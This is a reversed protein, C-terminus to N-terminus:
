GDVSLVCVEWREARPCEPCQFEMAVSYQHGELNSSDTTSDAGALEETGSHLSHCRIGHSFLGAILPPDSHDIHVSSYCCSLSVFVPLSPVAVFLVGDASITAEDFTISIKVNVQKFLSYNRRADSLFGTQLVLSTHM